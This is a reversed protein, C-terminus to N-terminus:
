ALAEATHLTLQRQCKAAIGSFDRGVEMRCPTLTHAWSSFALHLFRFQGDVALQVDQRDVQVKLDRLAAARALEQM